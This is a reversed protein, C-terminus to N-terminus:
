VLTERGSPEKRRERLCFGLDLVGAVTWAAAFGPHSGSLHAVAFLASMVTMFLLYQSKPRREYQWWRSEM